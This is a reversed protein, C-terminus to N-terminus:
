FRQKTVHFNFSPLHVEEMNHSAKCLIVRLYTMFTPDAFTKMDQERGPRVASILGDGRQGFLKELSILCLLGCSMWWLM